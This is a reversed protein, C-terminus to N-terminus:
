EWLVCMSGSSILGSFPAPEYLSSSSSSFYGIITCPSPLDSFQGLVNLSQRLAMKVLWTMNMINMNLWSNSLVLALSSATNPAPGHHLCGNYTTDKLKFDFKLSISQHQDSVALTM